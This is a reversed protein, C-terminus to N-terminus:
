ENDYDMVEMMKELRHKGLGPIQLLHHKPRSFQMPVCDFETFINEATGQGISPWGQLIHVGITERSTRGWSDKKATPRSFGTTHKDANGWEAIITLHYITDTVDETRLLWYGHMQMTLLMKIISKRHWQRGGYGNDMLYGDVTVRIKGELILIKLHLDASKALQTSLRGDSSSSLLDNITKRQVGIMGIKTPILFDMGYAECSHDPTFPALLEKPENPSVLINSM